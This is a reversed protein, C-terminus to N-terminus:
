SRSVTGAPQHEAGSVERPVQVAFLFFVLFRNQPWKSISVIISSSSLETNIVIFVVIALIFSHPWGTEWACVCVTGWLKLIITLKCSKSNLEGIRVTDKVRWTDRLTGSLKNASERKVVLGSSIIWTWKWPYFHIDCSYEGCMERWSFLTSSKLWIM